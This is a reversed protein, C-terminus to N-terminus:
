ASLDIKVEEISDESDKSLREKTIGYLLWFGIAAVLSLIGALYWVWNPGFQEWVLGALLVAFLNPIAWHFGFMAMYRGRKDEPAFFAATTQGIPMEIMEGITIIAMAIFFLYTESVFGYMGFGVMYFLTGVAMVKMPSYKLMWKTIWLQFLVVMLANMSLLLGFSQEPFNYVEDLFLSLTANMQM